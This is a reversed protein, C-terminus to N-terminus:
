CKHFSPPTQNSLLTLNAHLVSLVEALNQFLHQENSKDQIPAFHSPKRIATPETVVHHSLGATSHSLARDRIDVRHVTSPLLSEAPQIGPM